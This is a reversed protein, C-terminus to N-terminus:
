EVRRVRIFRKAGERRLNFSGFAGKSITVPQGAQLSLRNPSVERWVQKNELTIRRIGRNNKVVQVIESAISELPKVKLKELGFDEEDELPLEEESVLSGESHSDLANNKDRDIEGFDDIVLLSKFCILSLQQDHQMDCHQWIQLMCARRKEFQDLTLCYDVSTDDGERQSVAHQCLLVTFIFCIFIVVCKKIFM